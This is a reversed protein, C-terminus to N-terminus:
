RRAREAKPPTRMVIPPGMPGGPGTAAAQYFKQQLTPFGYALHDWRTKGLRYPATFDRIPMNLLQRDPIQRLWRNYSEPGGQWVGLTPGIVGRAREARIDRRSPVAGGRVAVNTTPRIVQKVLTDLFQQKTLSPRRTTTAM